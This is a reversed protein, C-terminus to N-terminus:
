ALSNGYIGMVIWNQGKSNELSFRLLDITCLMLILSHKFDYSISIGYCAIINALSGFLLSEM